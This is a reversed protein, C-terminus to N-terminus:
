FRKKDAVRREEAEARQAAREERLKAQKEQNFADGEVYDARTGLAAAMRAIEIKKAAALGHTDSAKLKKANIASQRHLDELLSARLTDVRQQVIDEELRYQSSPPIM